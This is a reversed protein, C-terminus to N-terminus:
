RRPAGKGRDRPARRRARAVRAVHGAVRPALPLCSGVGWDPHLHVQEPGVLHHSATDWFAKEMPDFPDRQCALLGCELLPSLSRALRNAGGGTRLSRHGQAVVLHAITMNNQTLTGTKDTCLVTATGLAEIATSRRVLVRHQAMRWAGMAMFVSM